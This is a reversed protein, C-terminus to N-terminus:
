RGFLGKLKNIAGKQEENLNEELKEKLKDEVESKLVKKLKKKAVSEAEDLIPQLIAVGLEGATLGKGGGNLQSRSLNPINLAYEGYSETVLRMNNNAFHLNNLAFRPEFPSSQTEEQVPKDNGDGGSQAAFEKVANLLAQINTTLGKQEAVISVGEITIDNIVIVDANLSMPDIHVRFTDAKFAYPSNFGKPNSVEFGKLESMGKFLNIDVDKLNVATQTVQPGHTEVADEVLTSLNMLVAFVGGVVLLIVIFVIMLTIKIAKM